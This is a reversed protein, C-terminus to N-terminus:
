REGIIQKNEEILRAIEIIAAKFGMYYKQQRFMPAILQRNIGSAIEDKIIKELGYGVEMRLERNKIVDTILIGDDFYKRGIGISNATRLSFEELTEGIITDLTIIGVQSGIEIDLKRILYFLSDEEEITLLGAHDFIRNEIRSRNDSQSQM